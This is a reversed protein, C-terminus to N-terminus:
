VEPLLGSRRLRGFDDPRDVDWITRLEALVLGAEAARRRPLAAVRDTGWPMAAFLALLPRAAAILGYGGDEAPAIVADHGARLLRAADALDAPELVPCDTGVLVVPGPAAEFPLLMRRGLDGEPQATLGAGAAEALTRLVPHAVDPAGWLTVPGLGSAQATRLARGILLAQLRAAGEPGLAPILRTKAYGPIPAKALVAVAAEASM